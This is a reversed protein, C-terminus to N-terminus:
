EAAEPEEDEIGCARDLIGHWEESNGKRAEESALVVKELEVGSVESLRILTPISGFRAGARMRSVTSHSLGLAEGLQANTCKMM